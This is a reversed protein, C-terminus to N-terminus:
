SISCTSKLPWPTDVIPSKLPCILSITTLIIVSMTLRKKVCIYCAVERCGKCSQKRCKQSIFFPVITIENVTFTTTLSFIGFLKSFHPVCLLNGEFHLHSFSLCFVPLLRNAISHFIKCSMCNLSVLLYLGSLQAHQLIDIRSSM